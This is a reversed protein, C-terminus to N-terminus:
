RPSVSPQRTVRLQGLDALKRAMSEHTQLSVGGDVVLNQGTIWSAKPSCLFAIVQAVEEATGMRDLPTIRRYLEALPENALYFARSEAKLITGPSVANVRIGRPGLTTAYYRAMQVLGAKAVHYSAPQEEAVFRSAISSVLVIARDDAMPDFEEALREILRKTATLSTALEGDWAEGDGRYKQFCVLEHLKGQARMVERLVVTLREEDLVDATWSRVGPLPEDSESGPRRGIVSLAHDAQGALLRVFARGIGRTGGIVLCHRKEMM